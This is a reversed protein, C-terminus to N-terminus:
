VKAFESLDLNNRIFEWVNEVSYGGRASPHRFSYVKLDKKLVIDGYKKHELGAKYTGFEVIDNKTGLKNKLPRRDFESSKREIPLNNYQLKGFCVLVDIDNGNIFEFLRNNYYTRNNNFRIADRARYDQIGCLVEVYNGFCVQNWFEISNEKSYGFSEAIKDFFSSTCENGLHRSLVDTTTFDKKGKKYYHSEGLILIRKGERNGGATWVGKYMQLEERIFTDRTWLDKHLLHYM